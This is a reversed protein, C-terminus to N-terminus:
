EGMLREGKRWREPVVFKGRWLGRKNERAIIEWADMGSHHAIAWGNRVMEIAVSTEGVFCAGRNTKSDRDLLCTVPKDGILQKLFEAAEQGCPYLSNGILGKQELEPADIAGNLDVETGDDFVLAHANRVKVKGTIRTWTRKDPPFAIGGRVQEKVLKSAAAAGKKFVRFSKMAPGHGTAIWDFEVVDGVNAARVATLVSPIPGKLKPDYMVHYRRPQEEGPALVEIITNKGDPTQKQSKLEGIITGTKSKQEQVADPSGGMLSGAILSVMAVSKLFITSDNRM